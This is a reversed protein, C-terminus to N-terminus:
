GESISPVLELHRRDREASQEMAPTNSFRRTPVNSLPRAAQTDLERQRTRDVLRCPRTARRLREPTRRSGSPRSRPEGAAVADIFEHLNRALGAITMPPEIM